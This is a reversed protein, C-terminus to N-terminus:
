LPVICSVTTINLDDDTAQSFAGSNIGARSDSIRAIFYTPNEFLDLGVLNLQTNQGPYVAMQVRPLPDCTAHTHTHLYTLAM